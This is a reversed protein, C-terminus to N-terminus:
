MALRHPSTGKETDTAKLGELGESTNKLPCHNQKNARKQTSPILRPNRPHQRASEGHQLEARQKTKLCPRSWTSKSCIYVRGAGAWAERTSPIASMQM